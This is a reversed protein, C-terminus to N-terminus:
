DQYLVYSSKGEHKAAYLAADARHYLTNVDREDTQKYAVGVCFSLDYSKKNPASEAKVAKLLAKIRPELQAWDQDLVVLAFEDGGIRAIVKADQIQEKLVAAVKQLAEDGKPHGYRDNIKKLGDVDLLILACNEVLPTELVPVLVNEYALRNGLGTLPDTSADKSLRGYVQNAEQTQIFLYAILLALAYSPGLVLWGPVFTQVVLGIAALAPILCLVALLRKDTIKRVNFLLLLVYLLFYLGSLIYSLYFLPGRVYTGDDKFYFMLHTGINIVLAVIFSASAVIGFLVWLNYKRDQESYAIACLYLFYMLAPITSAFFYLTRITFLIWPTSTWLVVISDLIDVLCFLFGALLTLLFVWDRRQGRNLRHHADLFIVIFLIAALIETEYHWTVMNEGNYASFFLFSHGV